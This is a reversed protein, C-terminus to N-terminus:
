QKLVKNQMCEKYANVFDCEDEIGAVKEACEQEAEDIEAAKDAFKPSRNEKMKDLNIKNGSELLGRKKMICASFCKFEPRDKNANFGEKLLEKAIGAEEACEFFEPRPHHRESGAMQILVVVAIFLLSKM